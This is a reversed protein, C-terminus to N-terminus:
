LHLGFLSMTEKFYKPIDAKFATQRFEGGEPLTIQWAHLHLQSAPSLGEGAMIFADRGAYKGDGYIPHGIANMHARLQHKRGTQPYLAVLSIKNGIHDLVEYATMARKGNEKDIITKESAGGSSGLPLDIEGQRIEPVGMVLALYTKEVKREKFAKTLKAAMIRSRAVLLIGSTDKDLRHVLKHDMDPFVHTLAHDLGFAQKSGGQVPIGDPKNMVLLDKSQFIISQQITKEINPPLKPTRPTREESSIERVEFLKVQWVQGPLIKEDAKGKRKEESLCRVQGKRLAKQTYAFSWDDHRARLWRDLRMGADKETVFHETLKM